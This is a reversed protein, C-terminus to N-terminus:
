SRRRGLSEGPNKVIEVTRVPRLPDVMDVDLDSWDERFSSADSVSSDNLLRIKMEGEERIEEEESGTPSPPFPPPPFPPPPAVVVNVTKDEEKELKSLEAAGLASTQVSLGATPDVNYDGGGCGSPHIEVVDVDFATPLRSSTTQRYSSSLSASNADAALSSEKDDGFFTSTTQRRWTSADELAFEEGRNQQHQQQHFGVNFHDNAGSGYPPFHDDSDGDGSSRGDVVSAPQQQQRHCKDSRSESGERGAVLTTNEDEKSGRRCCLM